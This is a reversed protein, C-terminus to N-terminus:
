KGLQWSILYSRASNFASGPVDVVSYVIEDVGDNNLDGVVMDSIQGSVDTTRWKSGFALGEWQLCEVHGSKFFRLNPLLNKAYDKNNILIVENTGDKDIDSIFVRQPLYYRKNRLERSSKSDNVDVPYPMYGGGGTFKDKSTWEMDGSKDFVRLRLDSTLAVTMEKGENTANGSSFAYLLLGRPVDALSSESYTGNMWAMVHIGKSFLETTGRQQGLLVAKKGPVTMVRFYWNADQVIKELKTGDWELVYSKLQTKDSYLNTVFIEARGNQNIDAVDVRIATNDKEGIVEDILELKGAVYRYLSVSNDNIIVLTNQKDGLVDGIALSKIEAKFKLSRWVNAETKGDSAMMRIPTSGTSVAGTWLSDPHRHSEDVATKQQQPKLAPQTLVSAESGLAKLIEAAYLKVHQLADGQNTGTQSFVVKPTGDATRVLRADTRVSDNAVTVTGYSVFGAKLKAAASMVAAEGIPKSINASPSDDWNIVEISQDSALRSALMQSIGKQLFSLDSDSQIYFPLVLVRDAASASVFSILLLFFILAVGSFLRNLRM